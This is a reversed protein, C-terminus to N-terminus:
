LAQNSSESPSAMLLNFLFNFAMVPRDVVLSCLSANCTAM